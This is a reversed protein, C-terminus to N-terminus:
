VMGRIKEIEEGDAVKEGNLFIVPLVIEGCVELLYEKVIDAELYIGEKMDKKIEECGICGDRGIVVLRSSNILNIQLARLIEKRSKKAQLESNIFTILDSYNNKHKATEFAVNFIRKLYNM